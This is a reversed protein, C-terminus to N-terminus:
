LGKLADIFLPIKEKCIKEIDDINEGTQKQKSVTIIKITKAELWGFSVNITNYSFDTKCMGKLGAVECKERGTKEAKVYNAEASESNKYTTINVLAWGNSDASYTIASNSEMDTSLLSDSVGKKSYEGIQKPFKDNSEQGCGMFCVTSFVILITIILLKKM